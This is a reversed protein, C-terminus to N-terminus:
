YRHQEYSKGEMTDSWRVDTIDRSGPERRDWAATM